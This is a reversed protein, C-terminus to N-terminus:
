HLPRGFAKVLAEVQQENLVHGGLGEATTIPHWEGIAASLVFGSGREIWAFRGNGLDVVLPPRHQTIVLANM